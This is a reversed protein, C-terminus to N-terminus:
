TERTPSGALVGLGPASLSRACHFVHVKANGAGSVASGPSAIHFNHPNEESLTPTSLKENLAAQLRSSAGGAQYAFCLALVKSM